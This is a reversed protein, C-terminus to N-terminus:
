SNFVDYRNPIFENVDLVVESTVLIKENQRFISVYSSKLNLQAEVM